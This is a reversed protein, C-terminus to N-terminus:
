GNPYLVRSHRVSPCLSLCRSVTLILNVYLTARYFHDTSLKFKKLINDM